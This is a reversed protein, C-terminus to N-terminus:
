HGNKRFIRLLRVAERIEEANGEIIDHGGGNRRLVTIGHPMVLLRARRRTPAESLPAGGGSKLARRRKWNAKQTKSIADKHARSLRRGSTKAM